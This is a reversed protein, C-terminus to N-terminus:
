PKNGQKLPQPIEFHFEAWSGEQSDAWIRGGHAQIIRWTTYLGVGTGKRAMLEKTQLRSFKKFLKSRQSKPFGPGENWVSVGLKGEPKDVRLRIQGGENGYKVANGLLNVMVIHLLSPDCEIQPPKEPVQRELKMQRDEMESHVVSLAPEVVEDLFDVGRQPQFNFGSSEVRALDLYDKILTILYQSKARIKGLREKQLPELSGMYEDELANLDMVISALPSKLEHSIFGLMETYARNAATLQEIRYAKEVAQSLRDALANHLFVEHMGYTNAKRSSRFLFGVNRGEVSLPCTMSSRVGERLLLRTSASQQKAELYAELDEILRIQGTDRVRALTSQRLDEAYGNQLLLPSYLARSWHSVVRDDEEVFAISLRDCPFINLTSEFVFDMVAGLSEGSAVRHNVNDLATREDPSFEDIPVTVKTLDIYRVIKDIAAM